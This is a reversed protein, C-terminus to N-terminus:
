ECINVIARQTKQIMLNPNDKAQMTVSFKINASGHLMTKGTSSPRATMRPVRVIYMDEAKNYEATANM